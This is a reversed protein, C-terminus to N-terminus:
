PEAGWPLPHPLVEVTGFYNSVPTKRRVFGSKKPRQTSNPFVECDGKLGGNDGTGFTCSGFIPTGRNVMQHQPPWRPPYSQNKPPPCVRGHWQLGCPFVRKPNSSFKPALFRRGINPFPHPHIDPHSGGGLTNGPDKNLGKRIKSKKELIQTQHHKQGGFIYHEGTVGM